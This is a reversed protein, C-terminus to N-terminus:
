PNSGIWAAVRRELVDLPLAGQGLVVEHFSRLDFRVGLRSEARARLERIKLQGIKYALAQGPNTIYRDVENTVDLPTKAANELFYDIARQRSWGQVHMGTDVVLRVARWMEYTLAGFRSKPDDYLGMEAGLSEAYLGWGEVFATYALSARRFEPLGHLEQALAIQLHHGPVSEHLSLVMMEYIPRQEPKYLNVYYSGARSGDLAGPWYYATTTDPALAAPIPVVGYPLRPLTKFVTVLEPDIRKATARYAALLEQPTKYYNAPDDRLQVIVDHLSGRYGTQPALDEMASRVRAVERLGLEHIAAPTMDTTTYTRAFYAYLEDGGPVHVLGVAEPAAPLYHDVVFARLERLAPNVANAVATRARERLRAADAASISAPIRTLPAYFASAEPDAILRDLQAPVRQMSPRPWLMRRALAERLLAISEAVARPYADLRQLWHEYDSVNAFRLQDIYLSYTQVGDRPSIAFLQTGLAYGRLADRLQGAYLDYNLRAGEGLRERGIREMRALVDRQHAAEDALAAESQADWRDDGSRDGALSAAIPHRRHYDAWDAALLADLATDAADAADAAAETPTAVAGETLALTGCAISAGRLLDARNMAATKGLAWEGGAM